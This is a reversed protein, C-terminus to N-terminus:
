PTPIPQDAYALLASRADQRVAEALDPPGVVRSGAGLSLALRRVWATSGTRLTVILSGDGVEDVQECPYYEAVWAAGPALALTVTQDNEGPQFLGLALDRAPLDPPPAAAEELITVQQVRGLHFLRVQEARRCWAELYTRGSAVVIRLPDVVRDTTEGRAATWYLLQLARGTDLGEKVSALSAPEGEWAVDVLDAATASAGAAAEVKALARLVPEPDILGPTEALTRLAVILAMAEDVTLRLPRDVGQPDSLTITDGEFEIEILDGPYHGPLGCMWLLNLDKRLREETIEFDAAATAFSVGPRTVLYPVLALLRPLQDTPVATM